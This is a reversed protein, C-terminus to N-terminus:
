HIIGRAGIFEKARNIPVAFGIGDAKSMMATNIGVAEGRINLLPGGSNGYNIPADTQIFGVQNYLGRRGTASIVGVTVSHELGFPSGVAIAWEGAEIRSSDGLPCVPLRDDARVRILALDDTEDSALVEADWERRDALRVRISDAGEIVHYNTLITGDPDVVFGSGVSQRPHAEPPAESRFRDLWRELPNEAGGPIERHTLGRGTTRIQVVAPTAKRAIKVFTSYAPFRKPLSAKGTHVDPSENGDKLSAEKIGGQPADNEDYATTCSLLACGLALAGATKLGPPRM